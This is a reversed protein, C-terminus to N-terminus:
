KPKLPKQNMMAAAENMMAATEAALAAFEPPLDIAANRKAAAEKRSMPTSMGDRLDMMVSPKKKPVKKLIEEQDLIAKQLYVNIQEQSMAILDCTPKELLSLLDEITRETVKTTIIAQEMFNM